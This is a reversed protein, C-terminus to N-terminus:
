KTKKENTLLLNLYFSVSIGLDQSTKKLFKLNDENLYFGVRKKAKM